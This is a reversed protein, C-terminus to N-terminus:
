RKNWIPSMERLLGIISNLQECTYRIDERTNQTCFTTRLSGQAIEHELGISLLVHSPDLSGSTCASGSSASIGAFSLRLLLSEGEIGEISINANGALRNQESGNLRVGEIALVERLYMDRLERLYATKTGIDGVADEIAAGLAVIGAVNETGARKGREQAGGDMFTDLQVGKCVFLAGVGKPANIKHGSLSLLDINDRKVDMEVNGVAQVADTHFLVGANKCVAGIESIPQITGIENNAYMVSVIATSDTITEKVAEPSVFGDNDVSLYSVEFGEKALHEATHLVAHHEFVSTIIHNKGKAKLRRAAGKIAWNDAETGSSTFYVEDEGCNLAKAVKGRAEDVGKKAPAAFGYISSPNAYHETLFPLMAQLVRESVRTTAANDLYIFRDM